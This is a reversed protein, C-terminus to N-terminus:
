NTGPTGSVTSTAQKELDMATVDEATGEALMAERAERLGERVMEEIGSVSNGKALEVERNVERIVRGPRGFVLIRHAIDVAEPVLHTIFVTTINTESVLGLLDKRIRAATLEDLATFAEDAYLIEPEIAFARAISVRQRMGGSLEHPYANEFGKLGVRELWERATELRQNKSVGLIHLGFAINEIATRWPLLRDNQFIIGVQGQLADASGFPDMNLVRVEGADPKQLGLLMNFSTSKGCGTEGVIAVIEGHKVEFTLGRCAYFPSGDHKRFIKDVNQFQIPLVENM